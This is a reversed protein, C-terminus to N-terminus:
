NLKGELHQKVMLYQDAYRGANAKGLGEFYDIGAQCDRAMERIQATNLKTRDIIGIVVPGAISSTERAYHKLVAVLEGAQVVPASELEAFSPLEQTNAGPSTSTTAM